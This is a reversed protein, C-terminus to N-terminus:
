LLESILIIIVWLLNLLLIIRLGAGYPLEQNKDEKKDQNEEM